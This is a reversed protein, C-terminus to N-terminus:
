IKQKSSNTDKDNNKIVQRLANEIIRSRSTNLKNQIIPLSRRNIEADISATIMTKM